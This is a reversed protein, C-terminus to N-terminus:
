SITKGKLSNALAKLTSSDLKKGLDTKRWANWLEDATFSSVDSTQGKKTKKFSALDQANQASIGVQPNIRKVRDAIGLLDKYKLNLLDDAVSDASPWDSESGGFGFKTLKSIFGRKIQALSAVFTQFNSEASPGLLDRLRKDGSKVEEPAQEPEQSAQPSAPAEEANAEGTDVNYGLKQSLKQKIPGVMEEPFNAQNNKKWGLESAADRFDKWDVGQLSRALAGARVEMVMGHNKFIEETAIQERNPLDRQVIRLLDPVGRLVKVMMTQIAILRAIIQKQKTGSFRQSQVAALESRTRDLVSDIEPMPVNAIVKEIDTFVKALNSIDELSMAELLMDIQNDTYKEQLTTTKSM